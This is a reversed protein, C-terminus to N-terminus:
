HTESYEIIFDIWESFHPCKGKIVDIGIDTIILNGEVVKDYSQYHSLIRKSPATTSGENIDEPNPYADVISCLNGLAPHTAEINAQFGTKSSFMLAEFEHLQVYPRFNNPSGMDKWLEAELFQVKEIQTKLKLREGYKPFNSPLAYYDILTTVLGDPTSHILKRLDSEFSSYNRNSLGGKFKTGDRLKKTSIIIPIVHIGYDNFFPRLIENVFMEETQGEVLIHLKM